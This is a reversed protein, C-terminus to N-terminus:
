VQIREKLCDYTVRHKQAIALAYALGDAPRRQLKFTRVAPNEPDVLSVISVTKENFSALEDLFTVCAVLVDLASLRAMVHKSLYIADKLTTSSFIENMVILSSPTAEDLIERIRLLDDQLKGRLNTIDEEREFHTFLRDFLFLRAEAGPVPCGLSALYHLQGFMRAFTTKGGQNPGSVVFIREPGSLSFDNCVVGIGERILKDALALDFTDRISVAKSTRSLAPLCFNLGARRFKQIYTLYSVYFQIERDFRSISEDLYETHSACFTELALFTEPFLLAVRDLVQAQIHNMGTRNRPKISYDRVTGSRFKEFTEEVDASYDSAGDDHRVTVGGDKIRLCYRIASLDSKLKAAETQLDRFSVSAAYEMLYERFATLGRSKANLLCVDPSLREVAECYIDVADLFWREAAQKSDRKKAHDLRDRMARMQGSFTRVAQMLGEDGLDRMVQQRYEIADLDNLPTYYLPLLEYDKWDATVADILQDLNLDGLFAPAEPTEGNGDDDPGEFLISSFTM